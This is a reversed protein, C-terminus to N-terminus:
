LRMDLADLDPVVQESTSVFVKRGFSYLRMVIGHDSTHPLQAWVQMKRRVRFIVVVDPVWTDWQILSGSAESCAEITSGTRQAPAAM